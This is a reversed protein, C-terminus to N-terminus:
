WRTRREDLWQVIPHLIERPAAQGLVLDLHGYDAVFGNATSAITVTVDSAGTATAWPEIADRPVIRDQGGGIVLLPVDVRTMAATYNVSGDASVLHGANMMRNLQRVEGRTTPSVVSTLMLHQMSEAMNSANFLIAEGHLPLSPHWGAMFRAVAPTAVSPPIGGIGSLAKGLWARADGEPFVIPAGVMVLGAIADDGHIAAYVAAVMGGMSHGVIAVRDHGTASQIHEIAAAVDHQGYDDITWGHHQRDGAKTHLADGHGRLDLLWPDFHAATLAEALSHDETLDWFRHNSSIGHVVLVPPGEHSHRHLAIEAGDTTAVHVTSAADCHQPAPGM